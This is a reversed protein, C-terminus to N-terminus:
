RGQQSKGEEAPHLVFYQIATWLVLDIPIALVIGLVGFLRGWLVITFLTVIPPVNVAKNMVWPQLVYSEVTQVGLYVVAVGLVVMLGQTSAYLLVLLFAVVPGLTPVLAAVGVMLAMTLAFDLGVLWFGVWSALGVVLMSLVAGLLWWRLRYALADFAETLLPRDNAPLLRKLPQTLRRAPEILLFVSGFVVLLAGVMAVGMQNAVSALMEGAQGGGLWQVAGSAIDNIRVVGVIGLREGLRGLAEDLADRIQPWNAVLQSVPGRLLWALGALAVLVGLWFGVGVILGSLWRPLWPVAERVPVLLAAVAGAMLLLLGILALPAFFYLVVVLLVAWVFLVVWTHRTHEQQEVQQEFQEHQQQQRSPEAM